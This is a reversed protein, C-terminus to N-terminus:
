RRLQAALLGFLRLLEAVFLERGEADAGIKGLGLPAQQQPLQDRQVQDLDIM